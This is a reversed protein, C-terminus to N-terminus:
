NDYYNTFVFGKKKQGYVYQQYILNEMQWNIMLLADFRNYIQIGQASTSVCFIKFLPMSACHNRSQSPSRLQEGAEWYRRIIRSIRRIYWVESWNKSLEEWGRTISSGSWMSSFYFWAIRWWFGLWAYMCYRLNLPFHCM